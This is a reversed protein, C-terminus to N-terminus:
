NEASVKPLVATTETSPRQARRIITGPTVSQRLGADEEVAGVYNQYRYLYIVGTQGSRSLHEFINLSGCAPDSCAHVQFCYRNQLWYDLNYCLGHM